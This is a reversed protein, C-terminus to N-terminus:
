SDAFTNMKETLMKKMSRFDIVGPLLGSVLCGLLAIGLAENPNSGWRSAISCIAFCAFSHIFLARLLKWWEKGPHKRLCFYVQGAVMSGQTIASIVACGVGGSTASAQSLWWANLVINIIAGAGAMRNLIRMDGRATLLTSFVYGQAFVAFSIMLWPLIDAASQVEYNYFIGLFQEPFYWAAWAIAAGATLLISSMSRALPRVDEENALMRTFYPLLLTACLYGIMNAAEFFRYSMAYWGAQIAGNPAMRELMIGDVRHYTMMLLFLLAYPWGATINEQFSRGSNIGDDNPLISAVERSQKKLRWFAILFTISLAVSSGALLWNVDFRDFSVILSGMAIFLISRDAISVWADTRHAGIGQLGARLYLIASLLAQNLGIWGLWILSEGRWGLLWGILMLTALYCPFLLRKTRWGQRFSHHIEEPQGSVFRTMHNALGADLIINLLISLSLLPFYRGFEEPGLLDQIKTDIILLYAPKVALNLIM